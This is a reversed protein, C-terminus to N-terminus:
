LRRFLMLGAATLGLVGGAVAVPKVLAGTNPVHSGPGSSETADGGNDGSEESGSDESPASEEPASDESDGGDGGEVTGSVTPASVPPPPSGGGGTTDTAGAPLSVPPASVGGGGDEETGALALPALALLLALIAASVSVM